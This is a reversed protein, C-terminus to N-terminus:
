KKPKSIRDNPRGGLGNTVKPKPSQPAKVTKAM